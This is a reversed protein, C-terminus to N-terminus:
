LYREKIIIRHHLEHGAIVRILNDISMKSGNAVGTSTLQVQSLNQSILISNHRIIEFRNILDMHVLSNFDANNVYLNEDFGPLEKEEGRLFSLLRFAFVQEADCVHGLVEKITWKNLSYSFGWKNKNIKNYFKLGNNLEDKLVSEVSRNKTLEVYPKYFEPLM